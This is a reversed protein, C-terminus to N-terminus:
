QYVIVHSDYALVCTDYPLLRADYVLIVVMLPLPSISSRLETLVAALEIM